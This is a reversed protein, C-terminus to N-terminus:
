APSRPSLERVIAIGELLSRVDNAIADFREDIDEIGLQEALLEHQAISRDLLQEAERLEGHEALEAARALHRTTHGIASVVLVLGNTTSSSRAKRRARAVEKRHAEKTLRVLAELGRRSRGLAGGFKYVVMWQASQIIFDKGCVIASCLINSRAAHSQPSNFGEVFDGRRVCEGFLAHLRAHRLMTMHELRQM